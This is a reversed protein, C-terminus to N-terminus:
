PATPATRIAVALDALRARFAEAEEASLLPGANRVDMEWCACIVRYAVHEAMAVDPQRRRGEARLRESGAAAADDADRLAIVAMQLDRRAGRGQLSATDAALHPVTTAVAALTDAIADVLRTSEQFRSSVLYVAVGVACGVLTDSGRALLLEGVNVQRSGTAITLAAATIFVSALGYHRVVLLEIVLQLVALIVALWWGQPHLWLIGAAVILGVWTGALRDAGRRLTRSRDAGQHLVLVAAAIAWYAHGIGLLTAAAGAVPAAVAVRVM